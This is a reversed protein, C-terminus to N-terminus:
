LNYRLRYIKRRIRRILDNGPGYHVYKDIVYELGKKDYDKHIKKFRKSRSTPRQLNLQMCDSITSECYNMKDNIKEFLVKAKENHILVLSIGNNNVFDEDLKDINWFDGITIDSCRNIDSFICKYCSERMFDNSRYLMAYDEIPLEKGSSLFAKATPRIWGKEKNKFTVNDIRGNIKKEECEIYKKWMVPSSVGHCILDCFIIRSMLNAYKNEVWKKAGAVQCPTGVVLIQKDSKQELENALLRYLGLADAQIYKSGRMKNRQEFDVAKNFILKHDASDYEVAIVLGDSDFIANSLATFAGGSSSNMLEKDNNLYCAYVLTNM